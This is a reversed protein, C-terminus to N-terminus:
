DQSGASTGSSRVTSSSMMSIPYGVDEIAVAGAVMLAPVFHLLLRPFSAIVLLPVDALATFYVSLYALLLLTMVVAFPRLRRACAVLALLPLMTWSLGHWASSNLSDFLGAAIVPTRALEFGGIRYPPQLSYIRVAIQWAVVVLGAPVVLAVLDPFGLRPEKRRRDLVRVGVLIGAVVLGETKAAAALAAILGIQRDGRANGDDILAPLAAVLVLAIMWDADGTLRQGIAVMAATFAVIALTAQATVMEVQARRLTERASLLLLAFWVGTWLMMARESFRGVLIASSAFLEPLLSPYNPNLPWNWSASLYAFDITRTLFYRHGKLGWHFVFDPTVFWLTLSLGVLLVVTVLGAQAGM